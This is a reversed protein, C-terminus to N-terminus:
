ITHSSFPAKAGKEKRIKAQIFRLYKRKLFSSKLKSLEEEDSVPFPSLTKPILASMIDYMVAM